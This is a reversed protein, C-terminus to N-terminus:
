LVDQGSLEVSGVDHTMCQLNIYMNIYILHSGDNYLRAETWWRMIQLSLIGDGSHLIYAHPLVQTFIRVNGRWTKKISLFLHM